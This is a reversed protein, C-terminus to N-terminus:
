AAIVSDGQGAAEIQAHVHALLRSELQPWDLLVEQLVTLVARELVDANIVKNYISGKLCERAARKHRYQRVKKGPPGGLNGVLAKQDQKAVLLDTLLYASTPYKTKNPREWTPDLRRAWLQAVQAIAVQRLSEDGLYDTLYPETTKYWEEEPRLEPKVRDATTAERDDLEVEKPRGHQRAYYIGSEVRNAIALFTYDENEYISQVKRACRPGGLPARVGRENLISAISRGGRGEVYHMRFLDRVIAHEAPDGPVLYVLESKQKRYHGKAKGGVQGYTDIVQLDPWSLKEQRGDRLDRLAFLPTGDSRCYLRYCGYPTHSHPSVQRREMAFQSGHASRQGTSKSQEQAADAKMSRLTGGFPVDDPLNDGPYLVKVGRMRLEHAVWGLHDSGGRTARDIRQSLVYKFDKKTDARELLAAIDTRNGPLSGTMNNRVYDDVWVMGWENGTDKLYKLQAGDSDQEETADSVRVLTVYPEGVYKLKPDEKTKNKRTRKAM